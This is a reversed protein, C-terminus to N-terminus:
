NIKIAGERLVNIEGEDLTILTSPEGSLRGGDLYFDVKDKFYEKATEITEAPEEGEPNASPAVLPGTKTILDLLDERDPLRFALSGKGRTLYGFDENKVKFIISVKGPWYKELINKDKLSLKISFRELDTVKSILIIFPKSVNRDKLEYIREITEPLDAKGVIGYLTDTSLIGIGGSNLINMVELFDMSAKINCNGFKIYREHVLFMCKM